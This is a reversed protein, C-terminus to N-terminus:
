IEVFYAENNIAFMMCQQNLSKGLKELEFEIIERTEVKNRKTYILILMIRDTEIKGAKNKWVGTISEINCPNSGNFVTMGGFERILVRYFDKLCPFHEIKPIFIEIRMNEM